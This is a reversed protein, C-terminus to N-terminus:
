EYIRFNPKRKLLVSRVYFEELEFNHFCRTDIRNLVDTDFKEKESFTATRKFDFGYIDVEKPISVSLWHLVSLGTTINYNYARRNLSMKNRAVDLNSIKSKPVNEYMDKRLYMYDRVPYVIDDKTLRCKKIFVKHVSENEFFNKKVTDINKEKNLVKEIFASKSIFAWIDIKSGHTKRVDVLDDFFIAPKNFRIVLDHNDIDDGFESDFLSLSNGVVAVRKGEVISEFTM